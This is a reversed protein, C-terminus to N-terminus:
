SNEDCRFSRHYVRRAERAAAVAEKLSSFSQHIVRKGNARLEFIWPKKKEPRYTIGKYPVKGDTRIDVNWANQAITAARLNEIRNNRKDRDIHDVVQPSEGYHWLYIVRHVAYDWGNIKVRRYEENKEPSSGALSGRAVSKSPKIKWVLYGDERYDFLARVQEQTLDPRSSAPM